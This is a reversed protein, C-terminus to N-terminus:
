QVASLPAPERRPLARTAGPRAPDCAAAWEPWEQDQLCSTVLHATLPTLLIGNRGHGTALVLGEVSTRGVIPLNDITAPRLGARVERLELESIGPLVRSADRLLEYVAGATVTTDFGKEESTSGLVLRGDQRPLLYLSRGGVVCRLVRQLLPAERPGALQLIQGKLPRVNPIADAPLGETGGSWCGTALVVSACALQEGGALVVGLVRQGEIAIREVTSQVSVVGAAACAARLAELLQRPDVQHDGEALVGCRVGPALLPELERAAAGSCRSVALGLHAQFRYLDELVAKDGADLGVLLAGSPLYGIRKGSAEELEGAFSPWLAASRLNLELLREEGWMAEGVPALMGAAAFSAGGDPSREVLAVTAGTQAARWASALGIVGGGAVVVDTATRHSTV